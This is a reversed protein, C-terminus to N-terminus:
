WSYAVALGAMFQDASGRDDVVPSDEADGLLRQYRAGVGVHWFESLHVVVAPLIRVDKIGGDAEFVPLATRDADSPSVGFYTEMYDEDAYTAGVGLSVDIAKSLPHWFRASVSATYGEHEGGIDQLYEVSVIFRKRPNAGDIFTFGGFVGAEITGDIEEMKKVVDDEVDDDRGFRYNVVPGFRLFPHDIVNAYLETVFLQIYREQGSFTIRGFPAAGVTSDDSGQYDPVLAVGAGFINPMNEIVLPSDQAQVGSTFIVSLMIAGTLLAMVTRPNKM